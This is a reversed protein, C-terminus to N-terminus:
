LGLPSFSVLVGRDTGLVLLFPAFGRHRPGRRSRRAPSAPASPAPVRARRARGAAPRVRTGYSLGGAAAPSAQSAPLPPRLSGLLSLSLVPLETGGYLWEEEEDGGTGGSLESVLRDVEGASMAAGLVVSLRRDVAGELGKGLRAARRQSLPGCVRRGAFFLSFRLHVAPPGPLPPPRSPESM